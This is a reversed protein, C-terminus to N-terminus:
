SQEACILFRTCVNMSDAFTHTHKSPLLDTTLLSSPTTSLSSADQSLASFTLQFLLAKLQLAPGGVM